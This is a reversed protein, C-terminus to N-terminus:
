RQAAAEAPKQAEAAAAAAAAKEAAAEEAVAKEAERKAGAAAEYELAAKEAAAKEAKAKEAAAAAKEAAAKEAAAKEQAAKIKPSMLGKKKSPQASRGQLKELTKKAEAIKKDDTQAAKSRGANEVSLRNLTEFFGESEAGPCAGSVGLSQAVKIRPFGPFTGINSATKAAKKQPPCNAPAPLNLDVFAPFLAFIFIGGAIALSFLDEAKVRIGVISSVAEALSDLFGPLPISSKSIAEGTKVKGKGAAMLPKGLGLRLGAAGSDSVDGRISGISRWASASSPNSALLLRVTAAAAARSSPEDLRQRTASKEISCVPVVLYM